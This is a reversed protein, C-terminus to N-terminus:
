APSVTAQRSISSRNDAEEWAIIHERMQSVSIQLMEAARSITIKEEEIAKRVLRHFRDSVFDMEDLNSPEEAKLGCPENKFALSKGTLGKYAIYFQKWVGNDAMGLEILRKLVTKYSIRYIRKVKLIRHVPHLGWTEDWENHFGTDPMLFHSAFIDAEREQAMDEIDNNVDFADLHLILHGLEHAASFIWREVSIRDWVNVIVAPGADETGVSLGFFGESTSNIQYVKVGASELLGCIDHIPKKEDLGMTERAKRAAEKARNLPDHEKLTISLNEFRYPVTNDLRHELFRYNDLWRAVDALINERTRMKKKSRFRVAHLQRVPIVLEQIRVGLAKAVKELTAVRPHTSANELKKYAPLSIGSADAIEKQTKKRGNRLRRLNQAVITMEMEVGEQKNLIYKYVIITLLNIEEKRRKRKEEQTAQRSISSRNDAEEASV